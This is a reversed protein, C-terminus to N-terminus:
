TYRQCGTMIPKSAVVVEDLIEKDVDLARQFSAPGAQRRDVVYIM